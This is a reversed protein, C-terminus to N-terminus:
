RGYTGDRERMLRILRQSPRNPRTCHSCGPCDECGRSGGCCVESTIIRERTRCIEGDLYWGCYRLSTTMYHGCLFISHTERCM